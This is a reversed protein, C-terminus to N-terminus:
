QASLSITFAWAPIRSVSERVLHLLFERTNDGFGELASGVAFPDLAMKARQDPEGVFLVDAAISLGLREGGPPPEEFGEGFPAREDEDELIEVPGVVAQEVEDVM